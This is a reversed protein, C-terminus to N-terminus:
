VSEKVREEKRGGEGKRGGERGRETGGEKGSEGCQMAPPLFSNRERGGERERARERKRERESALGSKKDRPRDRRFAIFSNIFLESFIHLL